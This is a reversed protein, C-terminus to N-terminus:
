QVKESNNQHYHPQADAAMTGPIMAIGYALAVGVAAGILMGLLFKM